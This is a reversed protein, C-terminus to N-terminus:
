IILFLCVVSGKGNSVQHPQSQRPGAAGTGRGRPMNLTKAPGLSLVDSVGWQQLTMHGSRINELTLIPVGM